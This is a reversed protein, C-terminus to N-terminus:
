APSVGTGAEEDVRLEVPLSLCRVAGGAKMFESMPLGIVRYGLEGLPERLRVASSSSVLVEGSVLGNCAFGAAVEPPVEILHEALGRLVRLSSPSFAEPFVLLTREDIPCLCTDLHYFRPEVLELPVLEVELAEAVVPLAERDTRFGHGCLLTDGLFLADGAGEFARGHTDLVHLGLREFFARWRPEEGQRQPHRFHSLVFREGRVVGANATFCMDPLGPVPDALVVELGLERYTSLLRNWQAAAPGPNVPVDMHMWPNIEYEIRFHAPPCMVVASAPSTRSGPPLAVGPTAM